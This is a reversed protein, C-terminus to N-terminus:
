IQIILYNLLIARLQLISFQMYRAGYITLVINLANTAARSEFQVTSNVTECSLMAILILLM